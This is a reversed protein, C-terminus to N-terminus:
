TKVAYDEAGGCPQSMNRDDQHLMEIDPEIHVEQQTREQNGYLLGGVGM